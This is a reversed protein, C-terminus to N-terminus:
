WFRCCSVTLKTLSINEFFLKTKWFIPMDLKNFPPKTIHTYYFLACM